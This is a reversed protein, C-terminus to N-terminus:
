EGLDDRALDIGAKHHCMRGAEFVSRLHVLFEAVFLGAVDL